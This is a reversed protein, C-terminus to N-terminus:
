NSSITNMNSNGIAAFYKMTIIDKEIVNSKNMCLHTSQRLILFTFM